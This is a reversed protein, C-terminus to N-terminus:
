KRATIKRWKGEINLADCIRLHNVSKKSCVPHRMLEPVYKEFLM